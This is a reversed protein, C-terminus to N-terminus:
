TSVRPKKAIIIDRKISKDVMHEFQLNPEDNLVEFGNEVFVESLKHKSVVFSNWALVITGGPKLIQSWGPLCQILLQYPNRTISNSKQAVANGHAIGYPLDGVIVHFSEKKFYKAADQSRGNVIGLKRRSSKEKFEQKSKAYEFERVMIAESKNKGYIRRSNSQHKYKEEELFKKFFVECAHTSKSDIEIGMPEFNYVVAEFLTTGRGAVPDLLRIQDRYDFDSSLLAVNIMMKTFLENTKGPYKLLSSIKQDVYEFEYKSIPILCDSEKDHDKFIAFVFSLRSLVQLDYDTIEDKTTFSIYRIGKINVIDIEECTAELRRTAIKLEALALEGSLNYYVRNHGPNQLILYRNM